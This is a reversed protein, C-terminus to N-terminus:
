AGGLVVRLNALPRIQPETLFITGDYSGPQLDTLDDGTEVLYPKSMPRKSVTIVDDRLRQATKPDPGSLAVEATPPLNRGERYPLRIWVPDAVGFDYTYEDATGSKKNTAALPLYLFVTPLSEAVREREPWTTWFSWVDGASDIAARVVKAGDNTMDDATYKDDGLNQAVKTWTQLNRNYIDQTLAGVDEFTRGLRDWPTPEPPDVRKEDAM